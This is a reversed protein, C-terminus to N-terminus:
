DKPLSGLRENFLRELSKLRVTEANIRHLQSEIEPKTLRAIDEPPPDSIGGGPIRQLLDRLRVNALDEPAPDTFGGRWRRLLDLVRVNLFDEPPPDAFWGPNRALIENLREEVTAGSRVLDSVAPDAIPRRMALRRVLDSVAPDAIPRRSALIRVLDTVAPDGVPPRLLNLLASRARGLDDPPPDGMNLLDNLVSLRGLAQEIRDLRQALSELDVTAM